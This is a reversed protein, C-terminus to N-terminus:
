FLEEVTVLGFGVIRFVGPSIISFDTRNVESTREHGEEYTELLTQSVLIFHFLVSSLLVNRFKGAM